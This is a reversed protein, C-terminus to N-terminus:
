NLKSSVRKLVDEQIYTTGNKSFADCHLVYSDNIKVLMNLGNFTLSKTEANYNVSHFLNYKDLGARLPLYIKGNVKLAPADSSIYGDLPIENYSSDSNNSSGNNSNGQQNSYTNLVVTQTESNWDVNLGTINGMERLPLYTSGNAIIPANNLKLNEGNLTINLDKRYYADLVKELGDEAFISTSVTLLSGVVAGIIYKRLM